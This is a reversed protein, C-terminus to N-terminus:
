SHDVQAAGLKLSRIPRKDALGDSGAGRQKQEV